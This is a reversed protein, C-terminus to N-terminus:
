AVEARPMAGTMYSPTTAPSPAFRRRQALVPWTIEGAKPNSKSLARDVREATNLGETGTTVQGMAGLKVLEDTFGRLFPSM